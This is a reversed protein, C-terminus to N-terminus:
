LVITQTHTHPELIGIEPDINIQLYRGLAACSGSQNDVSFLQDFVTACNLVADACERIGGKLEWILSISENVVIFPVQLRARM